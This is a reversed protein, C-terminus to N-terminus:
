PDSRAPVIMGRLHRNLGAAGRYEVNKAAARNARAMAAEVDDGALLRAFFTAGWVDGCGTPDGKRPEGEAAV